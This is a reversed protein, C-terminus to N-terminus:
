EGFASVSNGHVFILLDNSAVMLQEDNEENIFIYAPFDLRGILRGDNLNYATIGERLGNLLYLTDKFYTPSRPKVLNGKCWIVWGEERDMVCIQDDITVFLYQRVVKYAQYSRFDEPLPTEWLFKDKKVDYAVINELDQSYYVVGDAFASRWIRDLVPETKIEKIMEGSFANLITHGYCPIVIFTEFFYGQIEERCVEVEWLLVGDIAQYVALYPPDNVAVLHPTVDIVESVSPHRLPQRWVIKGDSQNLAMVGIGDTLYLMGSKALPPQYPTHRATKRQWLISGSMADLAFIENKTRAFIITDNVITIQQIDGRLKTTWKESLPFETSSFTTSLSFRIISWVVIGTLIIALMLLRSIKIWRIRM